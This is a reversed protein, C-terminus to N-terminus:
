AQFDKFRQKKQGLQADAATNTLALDAGFSFLNIPQM